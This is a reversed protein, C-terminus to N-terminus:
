PPWGKFDNRASEVAELFQEMSRAVAVRWGLLRLEAAWEQQKASLKGDRTKLEVLVVLPWKAFVTLDHAGAAITSEKDTRARLVKWPPWQARCHALVEDALKSEKAAAAGPAPRLQPRGRETRAKMSLFDAHSISGM